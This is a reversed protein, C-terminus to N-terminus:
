HIYFHHIQLIVHYFGRKKKFFFIMVNDLYIGLQERDLSMRIKHGIQCVQDIAYIISFAM